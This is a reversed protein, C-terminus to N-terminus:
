GWILSASLLIGFFAMHKGALALAQNLESPRAYNHLWFRIKHAIGICLLAPVLHLDVFCVFYFLIVYPTFIFAEILKIFQSKTMKTALTNKQVLKDKDKDRLNNIAILSCSLLGLMISALIANLDIFGLIM